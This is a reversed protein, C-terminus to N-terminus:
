RKYFDPFRKMFYPTLIDEIHPRYGSPNDHIYEELVKTIGFVGVRIEITKYMGMSFM